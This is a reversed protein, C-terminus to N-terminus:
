HENGHTEFLSIESRLYKFANLIIPSFKKSNLRTKISILNNSTRNM